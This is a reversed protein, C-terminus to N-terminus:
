VLEAVKREFKEALEELTNASSGVPDLTASVSESEVTGCDRAFNAENFFLLAGGRNAFMVSLQLLVGTPFRM